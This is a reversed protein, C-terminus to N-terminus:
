RPVAPTMRQAALGNRRGRDARRPGVEQSEDAPPLGIVLEAKVQREHEVSIQAAPLHLPLTVVARLRGGQVPGQGAQAGEEGPCLLLPQNGVVRGGLQVAQRALLGGRAAHRGAAEVPQDPRDGLLVWGHAEP